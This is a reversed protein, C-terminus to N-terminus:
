KGGGTSESKVKGSYGTPIRRRYADVAKTATAADIAASGAQGLVLDNPDAIMAALNSNISCGFNSGTSIRNGNEGAESWDPCGPVFAQFRSVVVRVAGPQVTGATVPTGESVMLGYQGALDAVDQRARVDGYSGSDVWVRDGYGLRLSEFWDGLRGLEGAGIGSGGSAVDMVYDTRQVVPQNVSNVTPNIGGRSQAAAPTAIGAALAFAILAITRTQAM